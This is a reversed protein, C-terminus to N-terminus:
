WAAMIEGSITDPPLKSTPSEDLRVIITLRGTDNPQRYIYIPASPGTHRYPPQRAFSKRTSMEREIELLVAVPGCGM